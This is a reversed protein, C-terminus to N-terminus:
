EKGKAKSKIWEQINWKEQGPKKKMEELFELFVDHYDFGRMDLTKDERMKKYQDFSIIDESVEWKYDNFVHKEIRVKINEYDEKRWCELPLFQCVIPRKLGGFDGPKYFTEGRRYKMRMRTKTFWDNSSLAMFLFFLIIVLSTIIMATDSIKPNMEAVLVATNTAISLM